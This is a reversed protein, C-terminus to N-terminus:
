LSKPFIHHKSATFKKHTQKMHKKRKKEIIRRKFTRKGGTSVITSSHVFLQIFERHKNEYEEINNEIQFLNKHTYTKFANQIPINTKGTKIFLKM